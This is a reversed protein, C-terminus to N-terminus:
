KQQYEEEPASDPLNHKEASRQTRRAADSGNLAPSEYMKKSTSRSTMTTGARNQVPVPSSHVDRYCKTVLGLAFAAFVFLAVRIETPTFHFRQTV